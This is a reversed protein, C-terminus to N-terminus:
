KPRYKSEEFIKRADTQLLQMLEIDEHKDMYKKVIQWGVFLGIYGPSNPGLEQTNPSDGMYNKLIAPENNYLLNNTLFFNWIGGENSYCGKLQSSTYGIKLTDDTNPLIQDLVYLRKGKEVMQEVMAKGALKEPYIDDIINKMSNVVITEPTFRRSIYNPYLSEAMQTHYISSNAGLHLQLGSALGESTLVDGYGGLPAMYYADMPGIFSNIVLPTNYNPFYHKVYKLGQEIEKAYRDFNVFLKDASDKIPKYDRIFQRIAAFAATSTDNMPPLGLINGLYDGLFSPYKVALKDFSAPINNTDIAFFDQEFRNVKLDIKIGSVDPTKKSKCAALVILFTLFVVAKNMTISNKAIFRM